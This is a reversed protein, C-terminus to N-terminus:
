FAAALCSVSFFGAIVGCVLMVTALQDSGKKGLRSIEPNAPDYFVPMAWGPERTLQMRKKGEYTKGEVEYAYVVDFTAAGRYYGRKPNRWTVRISKSWTKGSLRGWVHQDHVFVSILVISLLALALGIGLALYNGIHLVM